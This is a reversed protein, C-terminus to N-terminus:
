ASEGQSTAVLVPHLWVQEGPLLTREKAVRAALWAVSKQRDKHELDFRRIQAVKTQLPALQRHHAEQRQSALSRAACFSLSLSYLSLRLVKALEMKRIYDGITKLALKSGELEAEVDRLRNIGSDLDHALSRQQLLSDCLLRTSRAENAVAQTEVFRHEYSELGQKIRWRVEGYDHAHAFM